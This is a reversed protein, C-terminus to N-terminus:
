TAASRDLLTKLANAVLAAETPEAIRILYGNPAGLKLAAEPRLDVRLRDAEVHWSQIGGYVTEQHQNVLAYDDIGLRRDQDNLALSRSIELRAGTGDSGEALVLVEADLDDYRGFAVAHATFAIALPEDSM